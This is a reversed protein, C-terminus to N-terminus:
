IHPSDRQNPINAGTYTAAYLSREFDHIDSYITLANMIYPTRRLECSEEVNPKTRQRSYLGADHLTSLASTPSRSDESM